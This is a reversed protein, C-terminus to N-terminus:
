GAREPPVLIVSWDDEFVRKWGLIEELGTVLPTDQRLWAAKFQGDAVVDKWDGQLEGADLYRQVYDVSYIETRGDIGPSVSPAAWLLWGGLDYENLVHTDEGMGSLVQTASWPTNDPLAPSRPLVLAAVLGLSAAIAGVGIATQRASLRLQSAREEAPLRRGILHALSRAALPALLVCGVPVTRLYTIGLGASVVVYTVTVPDVPYRSRAWDIAILLLLVALAAGPLAVLSPPDWESVFQAYERVGLPALLLRPGAPNLSLLGVAAVLYGLMPVARRRTGSPNWLIFAVVLAGYLALASAWLGHSNAWLPWVVLTWWPLARGEVTRRLILPGLCALLLFSVLQPREASSALVGFVAVVSVLCTVLPGAVRRCQWVLTATLASFIIARVLIVGDYGLIHYAGAFAVESLWEHLVWPTDETSAFSWPDSTPWGSSLIEEGTRLHWWIDPDGLPRLSWVFGVVVVLWPLWFLAWALREGASSRIEGADLDTPRPELARVTPQATSPRPPM